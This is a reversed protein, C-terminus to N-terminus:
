SKRYDTPTMSTIKKFIKIFYATSGFGCMQAIDSIKLSNDSLLTLAKKVRFEALYANFSTNFEKKFKKGAYAVSIGLMEAYSTLNFDLNNYHEEIIKVTNKNFYDNSIAAQQEDDPINVFYKIFINYQLELTDAQSLEFIVDSSNEFSSQAKSLTIALDLVWKKADDYSTKSAEDFFERLHPTLESLNHSVYLASIQNQLKLPFEKSQNIEFSDTVTSNYGTFFRYKMLSNLHIFTTIIDSPSIISDTSAVTVTLGLLKSIENRANNMSETIDYDSSIEKAALILGVSDFDIDIMICHGYKSLYEELILMINQVFESINKYSNTLLLSNINDLQFQFCFLEKFNIKNFYENLESQETPSIFQNRVSRQLISKIAMYHHQRSHAMLISLHKQTKKSMYNSFFVIAAISIAIIVLTFSLIQIFFPSYFRELSRPIIDSIICYNDKEYKFRHTKVTNTNNLFYSPNNSLIYDNKYYVASNYDSMFAEDFFLDTLATQEFIYVLIFGRFDHCIVVLSSPTIESIYLKKGINHNEFVKTLTTYYNLHNESHSHLSDNFVYKNRTNIIFLDKLGVYPSTLSNIDLQANQHLQVSYEGDESVTNHVAKSNLIQFTTKNLDRELDVIKSIISNQSNEISEESIIDIMNNMSMYYLSIATASIMLAVVCIAVIFLFVLNNSNKKNKLKNVINM